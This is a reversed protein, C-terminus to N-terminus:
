INIKKFLDQIKNYLDKREEFLRKNEELFNEFIEKQQHIRKNKQEEVQLMDLYDHVLVGNNFQQVFQGEDEGNKQSLFDMKKVM